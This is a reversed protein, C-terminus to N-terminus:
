FPTKIKDVSTLPSQEILQAKGEDTTPDGMRLYFLKRISEWYAPISNLLTILNSPGYLHFLPQMCILLLHWVPWRLTVATHAAWSVWLKADVIGEGILYKIGWTIDDQMKDGWQKNGADLFKKGYGTSARFNPLLM